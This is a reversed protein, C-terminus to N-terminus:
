KKSTKPRGMQEYWCVNKSNQGAVVLDLDGDGDVDRAALDYACQQTSIDRRMFQARGDNEFWCLVKSEYACTAIDLDGDADLDAVVLTHPSNLTQDIYHPKWHPAEFWLVGFYHGQSAVLDPRGDGNVDGIQINTAQIYQTGITTFKWPKGPESPQTWMRYWEGKKAAHVVDLRGDLDIDGVGPYHALGGSQGPGFVHKKWPKGANPNEPGEFWYISDPPTSRDEGSAVIDIRGDKNIDGLAVAHAGVCGADVVHRPWPQTKRPGSGPNEYYRISNAHDAVIADIDGDRDVDATRLHIMLSGGSQEDILHRKGDAYWYILGGGSAIIDCMGSPSRDGIDAGQANFQHDLVRQEFKVAGQSPVTGLWVLLLANGATKLKMGNSQRFNVRIDIFHVSLGLTM